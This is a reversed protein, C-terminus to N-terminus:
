GYATRGLEAVGDRNGTGHVRLRSNKATDQPASAPENIDRRLYLEAIPTPAGCKIRSVAGKRLFWETKRFKKRSGGWSEPKEEEVVEQMALFDLWDAPM